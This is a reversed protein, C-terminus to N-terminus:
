GSGPQLKHLPSSTDCKLLANSKVPMGELGRDILNAAVETGVCNCYKADIPTGMPTTKAGPSMCQASHHKILAQRDYCLPAEGGPGTLRNAVHSYEPVAHLGSKSKEYQEQYYTVQAQKGSQKAIEIRKLLDREGVTEWSHIREARIMAASRQYKEGMCKCNYTGSMDHNKACGDAYANAAARDAENLTVNAAALLSKPKSATQVAPKASSSADPVSSATKAKAATSGGGSDAATAQASALAGVAAEYRDVCKMYHENNAEAAKSSDHIKQHSLDCQTACYSFKAGDQRRSRCEDRMRTLEGKLLAAEGKSEDAAGSTDGQATSASKVALTGAPLKLQKEKDSQETSPSASNLAVTHSDKCKQWTAKNGRSAPEADAMSLSAVNCTTACERYEPGALVNEYCQKHMRAADDRLQGPSAAADIGISEELTKKADQRGQEALQKPQKKAKDLTGQAQKKLTDFVNEGHVVPSAMWMVSALAIAVRAGELYGSRM